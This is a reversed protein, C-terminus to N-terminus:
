TNTYHGILLGGEVLFGEGKYNKGNNLGTWILQFKKTNPISAIKLDAMQPDGDQWVSEYQGSFDTSIGNLTASETLICDEHDNTFEGVLNGSVPLKFYFSGTLRAM